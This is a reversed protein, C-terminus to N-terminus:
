VEFGPIYEVAIRDVFQIPLGGLLNILVVISLGDEPYYIMTVANGGSASVTSHKKRNIVQWGMGYGNEYHNFGATEDYELTVPTWLMTLDKVLKGSQLTILYNAIEAATASMGAAARMIYPLEGYFNEHEGSECNFIYQRAQNAIPREVHTIGASLKICM